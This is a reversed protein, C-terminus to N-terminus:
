HIKRILIDKKGFSVKIEEDLFGLKKIWVLLALGYDIKGKFNDVFRILLDM